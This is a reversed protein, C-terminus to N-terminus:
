LSNVAAELQKLAKELTARPCAINIREFQTTEKGFLYGGDLWLNAKYVILNNLDQNCLGLEHCDLWILYTGEPEVLKIKPIREELFSRVFNLNDKLYKKLELYWSEGKTYASKTAVLGLTNLQSYGSAAISHKFKKRLIENPIFINSVQLGAFNFTKTPSTCVISHNAFEESLSAFVTHTHGEYTFDCHIEDSLIIVDHKICIEGLRKLEEKTWVRGVPNHPSCLLFLKVKNEMIKQEFDEFNISYHGDQYTLQNNVLIRNNDLVCEKFPYYVPQQILVADGEKTFANIAAAIAFVIGPTKILWEEKPMWNFHSSFWGAVAQFYESKVESYGFIGHNVAAHIDELIPSAIRFDMDAVWLPLIKEPRNREKAFDYKLSNTNRRDIIEDFNVSMNGGNRCM